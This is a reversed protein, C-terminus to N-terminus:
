KEGSLYKVAADVVEDRGDVVAKITYNVEVDPKIGIGIFESGDYMLDRKACVRGKGGGPLDFTVPQGTSGGTPQGFLKGRKISKFAVTFDEAASYTNGSILLAVQKDYLMLKYPKWDYREIDISEPEGWARKVPTHHRIVEQEQYFPKSTLTGLIEYGVSSNGGGNNRIDIILANTKEIQPFLSDYIKVVTDMGFTNLKLYGINGPLVKFDVMPLMKFREMINVRSLNYEAIKGNADKVTLKLPQKINGAFLEYSYIRAISDQSTAFSLYPSINKAVFDNVFVDNIKEIIMGPKLVDYEKTKSEVEWIVPKNEIWKVAVPLTAYSDDWQSEPPMIGSHGDHLNQYFSMLVKYYEKDNKALQVKSIYTYYVSDWNLLPIKDFNAFAWRAEAWARSLGAIKDETTLSSKSYYSQDYHSKYFAIYAASDFFIKQSFAAVSPLLLLILVFKKM